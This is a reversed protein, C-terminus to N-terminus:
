ALAPHELNLKPGISSAASAIQAGGKAGIQANGLDHLPGAMKFGITNAAREVPEKILGTAAAIPHGSLLETLSPKNVLAKATAMKLMPIAREPPKKHNKKNKYFPAKNSGEGRRWRRTKPM